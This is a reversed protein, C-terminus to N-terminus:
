ECGVGDRDRDLGHPDPPLVRVPGGIYNPGNGSGGSCDYDAAGRPLCVDPYSPDCAVPEATPVATPIPAPTPAITPTPTLAAPTRAPPTATATATAVSPPAVTPTPAAPLGTDSKPPAPPSGNTNDPSTVAAALFAIGLFCVPLLGGASASLIGRM